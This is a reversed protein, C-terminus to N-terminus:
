ADIAAAAAFLADLNADIEEQTAGPWLAPALDTISPSLRRFEIAENWAELALGGAGEVAAQADDLKGNALLVARAQFRSVVMEKRREAISPTYDVGEYGADVTVQGTAANIVTQSM